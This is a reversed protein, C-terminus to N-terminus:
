RHLEFITRPYQLKLLLRRQFELLTPLLYTIQLRKEPALPLKFVTGAGSKQLICSLKMNVLTNGM